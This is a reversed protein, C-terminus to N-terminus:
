DCRLHKKDRGVPCLSVVVWRRRFEKVLGFAIDERCSSWETMADDESFTTTTKKEFRWAVLYSLFIQIFYLNPM